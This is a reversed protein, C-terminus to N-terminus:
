DNNEVRSLIGKRCSDLLAKHLEPEDIAFREWRVSWDELLTNLATTKDCDDGSLGAEAAECRVLSVINKHPWSSDQSLMKEITAPVEGQSGLAKLLLGELGSREVLKLSKATVVTWKLFLKKHQEIALSLVGAGRLSWFAVACLNDALENLSVEVERCPVKEKGTLLSGKPVHRDACLYFLLSDNPTAM